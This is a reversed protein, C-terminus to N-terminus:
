KTQKCSGPTGDNNKHGLKPAHEDFTMVCGFHEDFTIVCGFAFPVLACMCACVCSLVSGSRESALPQPVGATPSVLLMAPLSESTHTDFIHKHAPATPSVLLM